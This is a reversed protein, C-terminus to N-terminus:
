TGGSEGRLDGCFGRCVFGFGEDRRDGDTKAIGSKLVDKGISLDALLKRLRANEERLKRAEQAEGFKSKPMGAKGRKM